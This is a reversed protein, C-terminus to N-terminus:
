LLKTFNIIRPEKIAMQCYMSRTRDQTEMSTPVNNHLRTHTSICKHQSRTNIHQHSSSMTREDSKCHLSNCINYPYLIVIIDVTYELLIHQLIFCHEQTIQTHTSTSHDSIDASVSLCRFTRMAIAYMMCVSDWARIIHPKSHTSHNHRHCSDRKAAVGAANTHPKANTPKM